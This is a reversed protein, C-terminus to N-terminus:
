VGNQTFLTLVTSQWHLRLPQALMPLVHCFGNRNGQRFPLIPGAPATGRAAGAASPRASALGLGNGQCPPRRASGPLRGPFGRSLGARVGDRGALGGYGGVVGGRLLGAAPDIPRCGLLRRALELRSFNAAGSAARRPSSSGSSSRRTVVPPWFPYPNAVLVVQDSSHRCLPAARVGRRALPEEPPQLVLEKGVPIPRYHVSANM